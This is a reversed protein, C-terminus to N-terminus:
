RQDIYDSSETMGHVFSIGFFGFFYCLLVSWAVLFKLLISSDADNLYTTANVAFDVVSWVFVAVAVINVWRFIHWRPEPGLKSPKPGTVPFNMEPVEPHNASGLVLFTVLATLGLVIGYMQTSSLTDLQQIAADLRMGITLQPNSLTSSAM